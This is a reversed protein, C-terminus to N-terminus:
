PRVPMLQLESTGPRLTGCVAVVAACAFRQAVAVVRTSEYQRCGSRAVISM